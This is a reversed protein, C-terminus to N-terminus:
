ISVHWQALRHLVHGGTKAEGERIRLARCERAHRSTSILARLGM